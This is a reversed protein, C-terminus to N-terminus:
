SGERLCIMSVCISSTISEQKKKLAWLFSDGSRHRRRRVRKQNASCISTNQRVVCLALSRVNLPLSVGIEDGAQSRSGVALHISRAKVIPDALDFSLAKHVNLGGKNKLGTLQNALKAM